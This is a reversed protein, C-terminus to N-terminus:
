SFLTLLDPFARICFDPDQVSGFGYSAYCFPIGAEKSATRDGEIDGVYVSGHLQNREMVLRINPGKGRGTAGPCEFDTIYPGLGTKELFLEIYGSQCNSVIFLPYDLSLRRITDAVGPYLLNRDTHSLATHERACCDDILVYREREPLTPFALDAIDRLPRGFLQKLDHATFRTSLDTNAEVAQNWAVAVIPTADWLTGDIDFIISDPKM